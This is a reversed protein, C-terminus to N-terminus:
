EDGLKKLDSLTVTRVSLGTESSTTVTHEAPLDWADLRKWRDQV